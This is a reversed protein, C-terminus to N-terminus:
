SPEQASHPLSSSKGRAVPFFVQALRSVISALDLRDDGIQLHGRIRVVENRGGGIELEHEQLAFLGREMKVPIQVTRHAARQVPNVAAREAILLQRSGNM